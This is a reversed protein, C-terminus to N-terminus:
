SFCDICQRLIMCEEIRIEKKTTLESLEPIIFDEFIRLKKAKSIKEHYLVTQLIEKMMDLYILEKALVKEKLSDLYMLLGNIGNLKM